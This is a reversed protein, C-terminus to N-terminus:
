TNLLYMPSYNVSETDEYERENKRVAAVEIYEMHIMLAVDIERNVQTNM